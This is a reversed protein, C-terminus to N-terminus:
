VPPGKIVITKNDSQLRALTLRVTVKIVHQSFFKELCQKWSTTILNLAKLTTQYCLSLLYNFKKSYIKNTSM